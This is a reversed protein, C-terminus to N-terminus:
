CRSLRIPIWVGLRTTKRRPSASPELKILWWTEMSQERIDQENGLLEDGCMGISKRVALVIWRINWDIQYSLAIM